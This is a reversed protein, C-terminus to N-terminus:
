GHRGEQTIYIPKIDLMHAVHAELRAGRSHEWGPLLAIGECTVLQALCARLCQQWTAKPDVNIEAPNIVDHGADRLAAAARHFAPFNFEPLGTMPGALYLKM